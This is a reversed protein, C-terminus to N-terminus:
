PMPSGWSTFTRSFDCPYGVLSFCKDTLPFKLFLNYFASHRRDEDTSTLSPLGSWYTRAEFMKLRVAFIIQIGWLYHSRIHKILIQKDKKSRIILNLNPSSMRVYFERSISKPAALSFVILFRFLLFM